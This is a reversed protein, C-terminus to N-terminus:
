YELISVVRRSNEAMIEMDKFENYTLSDGYKYYDTMVTVSDTKRTIEIEYTEGEKEFSIHIGKEIESIVYEFYKTKQKATRIKNPKTM